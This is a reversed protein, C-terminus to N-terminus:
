LIGEDIPLDGLHPMPNPLFISIPFFDYDGDGLLYLTADSKSKVLFFRLIPFNASPLSTYKKNLILFNFIIAYKSFIIVWWRSIILNSSIHNMFITYRHM